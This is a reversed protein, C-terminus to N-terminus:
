KLTIWGQALAYTVAETRNDVGLKGFINRLHVQVTYSSICLAEAIEKNAMGRAAAQLVEVERGTLAVAMGEARYGHQRSTLRSVVKGAVLPDLATRGAHVTRIAQALEAGTTTKLLYGDAGAELLPLVYEDNEYASLILVKTTPHRGKIRRTAELGGMKPMRVDMVVVDPRLREALRVAEEGDGAEGVISLDGARELLQRTGERVIDHDEALLVRIAPGATVRQEENM